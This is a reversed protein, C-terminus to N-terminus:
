FMRRPIFTCPDKFTLFHIIIVIHHFINSFLKFFKDFFSYFNLKELFILYFYKTINYIILVFLQKEPAPNINTTDCIEVDNIKITKSPKVNVIIQELHKIEATILTKLKNDMKIDMKNNM